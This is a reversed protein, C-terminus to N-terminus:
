NCQVRMIEYRYPIEFRYICYYYYRVNMGNDIEGPPGRDGQSTLNLYNFRPPICFEINWYHIDACIRQGSYVHLCM